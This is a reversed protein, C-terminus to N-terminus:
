FFTFHHHTLGARNEGTIKARLSLVHFFTCLNTFSRCDPLRLAHAM